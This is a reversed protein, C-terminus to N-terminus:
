RPRARLRQSVFLGRYYRCTGKPQRPPPYPSPTPTPTSTVISGNYRVANYPRANYTGSAQSSM